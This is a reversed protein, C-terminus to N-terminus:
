DPVFLPVKDHLDGDRVRGKITDIGRNELVCQRKLELLFGDSIWRRLRQQSYCDEDNLKSYLYSKNVSIESTVIEGLQKKYSIKLLIESAGNIMSASKVMLLEHCDPIREKITSLSIEALLDLLFYVYAEEYINKPTNNEKTKNFLNFM